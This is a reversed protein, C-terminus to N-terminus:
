NGGSGWVSFVRDICLLVTFTDGSPDPLDRSNRASAQEKQQKVSSRRSTPPTQEGPADRAAVKDTTATTRTSYM